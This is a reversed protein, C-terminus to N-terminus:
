RQRAKEMREIPQIAHIDGEVGFLKHRLIPLQDRFQLWQGQYDGRLTRASRGRCTGFLPLDPLAFVAEVSHGEALGPQIM